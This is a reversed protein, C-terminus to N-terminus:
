KTKLRWEYNQLILNSTNSTDLYPASYDHKPYSGWGVYCTKIWEKRIEKETNWCRICTKM